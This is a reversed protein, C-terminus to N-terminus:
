AIIAAMAQGQDGKDAADERGVVGPRPASAAAFRLVEARQIDGEVAGRTFTPGKGLPSAASQFSGRFREADPRAGQMPIAARQRDVDVLDGGRYRSPQAAAHAQVGPGQDFLGDREVHRPAMM